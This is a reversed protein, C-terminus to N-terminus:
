PPTLMGHEGCFEIFERWQREGQLKIKYTMYIHEHRSDSKIKGTKPDPGSPITMEEVEAMTRAVGTLVGTGSVPIQLPLSPHDMINESFDKKPLELVLWFTTSSQGQSNSKSMYDKMKDVWQTYVTNEQDSSGDQTTDTVERLSEATFPFYM